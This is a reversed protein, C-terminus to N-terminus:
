GSNVNDRDSSFSVQDKKNSLNLKFIQPLQLLDINHLTGFKRPFNVKWYLVFLGASATFHCIPYSTFTLLWSVGKGAMSRPVLFSGPLPSAGQVRFCARIMTPAMKSAFQSNCPLAVTNKLFSFRLLRQVTHKRAQSAANFISLWPLRTFQLIDTM